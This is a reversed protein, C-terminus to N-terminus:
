TNTINYLFAGNLGSLRDGSASFVDNPMQYLGFRKSIIFTWTGGYTNITSTTGYGDTIETTGPCANFIARVDFTMSMGADVGSDIPLDMQFQEVTGYRFRKFGVYQDVDIFGITGPAFVGLRNASAGFPTSLPANIDLDFDYGRINAYNQGGLNPGIIGNNVREQYASFNGAGVFAPVGDMENLKYDNLIVSITSALDFQTADKPINVTIPSGAAGGQNPNKGFIVRSLLKKNLKSILPNVQSMILRLVEQMNATPDGNIKATAVADEAYAELLDHPVTVTAQLYDPADLTYQKRTPTPAPDCSPTDSINDESGRAYTWFKIDRYQGGMTSLRLKEFDPLDLKPPAKYLMKTFGIPTIKTSPDNVGTLSGIHQLLFPAIGKDQLAPYVLPM